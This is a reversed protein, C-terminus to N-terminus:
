PIFVGWGSLNRLGRDPDAVSHVETNTDQSLKRLLLRKEEVSPPEPADLGGWDKFIEPTTLSVHKIDTTEEGFM